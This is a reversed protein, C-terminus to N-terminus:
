LDGCLGQFKDGCLNDISGTQQKLDDLWKKASESGARKWKLLHRYGEAAIRNMRVDRIKGFLIREKESLYPSLKKFQYTIIDEDKTDKKDGMVTMDAWYAMMKNRVTTDTYLDAFAKINEESADGNMTENLTKAQAWLALDPLFYRESLAVVYNRKNEQEAMDSLRALADKHQLFAAKFLWSLTLVEHGEAISDKNITLPAHHDEHFLLHDHQKLLSEHIMWAYTALHFQGLSPVNLVTLEPKQLEDVTQVMLKQRYIHDFLTSAEYLMPNILALYHALVQEQDRIFRKIEEITMPYGESIVESATPIPQREPSAKESEPFCGVLTFFGLILGLFLVIKRASM